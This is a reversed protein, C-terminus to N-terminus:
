VVFFTILIEVQFVYFEVIYKVIEENSSKQHFHQFVVYM